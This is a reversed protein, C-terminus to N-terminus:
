GHHIGKQGKIPRQTLSQRIIRERRPGGSHERQLAPQSCLRASPAAPKQRGNREAVAVARDGRDASRVRLLAFIGKDDYGHRCIRRYFKAYTTQLLDEVDEICRAKVLAYRLMDRYTADYIENFYDLCNQRPTIEM